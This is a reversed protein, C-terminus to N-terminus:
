PEVEGNKLMAAVTECAWQTALSHTVARPVIGDEAKKYYKRMADELKVLAAHAPADLTIVKRPASKATAPM